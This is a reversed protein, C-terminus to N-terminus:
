GILIAFHGIKSTNMLKAYRMLIDVQEISVDQYADIAKGDQTISVKSYNEYDNSKKIIKGSKKYTFEDPSYDTMRWSLIPGGKEQGHVPYGDWTKWLEQISIHPHEKHQNRVWQNGNSDSPTVQITTLYICENLTLKPFNQNLEYASYKTPDCFKLINAVKGVDMKPLSPMSGKEFMKIKYGLKSTTIKSTTTAKAFKDTLTSLKDDDITTAISSHLGSKQLTVLAAWIIKLDDEDLHATVDKGVNTLAAM